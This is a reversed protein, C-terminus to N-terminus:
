SAAEELQMLIGVCLEPYEVGVVLMANLIAESLQLERIQQTTIPKLFIGETLKARYGADMVLSHLSEVTFLRHHGLADDAASLHTVDPILGAAYGFRKNLAQCNPVAVFVSGGPKLFRKYARLILAPDDVHELVFGMVVVDFKETTDFQEFYAEQIEVHVDPFNERFQRIVEPSGDIVVHRQFHTSFARTSYGHGLGLELLSGGRAARIVRQPYWNLILRNDLAYPFDAKYADKFDDLAGTKEHM